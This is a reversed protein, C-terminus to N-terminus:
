LGDSMVSGRSPSVRLVMIQLGKVPQHTMNLFMSEPVNEPNLIAQVDLCGSSSSCMMM